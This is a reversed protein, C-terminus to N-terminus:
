SRVLDNAHVGPPLKCRRLVRILHVATLPIRVHGSEYRQQTRPHVGLLQARATVSGCGLATLSDKLEEPTMTQENGPPM